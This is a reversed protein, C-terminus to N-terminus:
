DCIKKLKLASKVNEGRYGYRITMKINSPSSPPAFGGEPKNSDKLHLDDPSMGTHWMVMRRSFHYVPVQLLHLSQGWLLSIKEKPAMKDPCYVSLGSMDFHRHFVFIFKLHGLENGHTRAWLTSKIVM